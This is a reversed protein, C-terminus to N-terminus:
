KRRFRLGAAGLALILLVGPEPVPDYYLHIGPNNERILPLYISYAEENLPNGRLDLVLLSTLGALASIDAIRNNALWLAQLKTLAPLWPIDHATNCRL